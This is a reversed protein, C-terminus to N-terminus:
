GNSVVGQNHNKVERNYKEKDSDEVVQIITKWVECKIPDSEAELSEQLEALEEDYYQREVNGQRAALKNLKNILEQKYDNDKNEPLNQMLDRKLRELKNKTVM